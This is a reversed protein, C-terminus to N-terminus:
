QANEHPETFHSKVTLGRHVIYLDIRFIGSLFIFQNGIKLYGNEALLQIGLSLHTSSIFADRGFFSELYFLLSGSLALGLRVLLAAASNWNWKRIQDHIDVISGLTENGYIPWPGTMRSLRILKLSIKVNFAIRQILYPVPSCWNTPIQQRMVTSQRCHYWYLLSSSM